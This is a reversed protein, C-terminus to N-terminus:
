IILTLTSGMTYYVLLTKRQFWPFWFLSFLFPFTEYFLGLLDVTLWEGARVSLAISPYSKQLAKKGIGRALLVSFQIERAYEAYKTVLIHNTCTM